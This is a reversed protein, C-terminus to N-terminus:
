KLLIFPIVQRHTFERLSVKQSVGWRYCVTRTYFHGLYNPSVRIVGQSKTNFSLAHPVQFIIYFFTTDTICSYVPALLTRRPNNWILSFKVRNRLYDSSKFYIRQVQIAIMPSQELYEPEPQITTSSALTRARPSFLKGTISRVEMDGFLLSPLSIKKYEGQRFLLLLLREGKIAFYYSRSNPCSTNWVNLLKFRLVCVCVSLRHTHPLLFNPFYV